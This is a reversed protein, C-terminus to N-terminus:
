TKIEIVSNDEVTKDKAIPKKTKMDIAKKFNDGIDSHIQYAFDLTTAENPLLVADPLVNGDKDTLDSNAVPYAVKYDLTEFVAKNLVKQAGTGNNEKLIEKMFELGKKQQESLKDEELIEFADEGPTYNILGKEDAERLALETEASMPIFEYESFEERLKELSQRAGEVDIKNAAIIMPKSKMRLKKALKLTQEESWNTIDESLDLEKLAQETMEETVRVGSMHEAIAKSLQQSEAKMKRVFKDWGDELIDHYWHDLEIEMYRIDQSPDYSGPDVPEGKENTSGSVDIMHILVDAQNLDNLFESGMGKGKHAGPVLGAVDILNVPIFREGNVCKGERPECEVNFEQEPCPHKVFAVGQNPDITTFPYNGMDIDALTMAKFFTSKGVNAKGWVGVKM